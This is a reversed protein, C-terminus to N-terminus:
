CHLCSSCFEVTCMIFKERLSLDTVLGAEAIIYLIICTPNVFLVTISPQYRHVFLVGMGVVHLNCVRLLKVFVVGVHAIVVNFHLISYLTESLVACYQVISHEHM